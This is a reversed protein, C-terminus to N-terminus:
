FEVQSRAMTLYPYFEQYTTPSQFNQGRLYLTFGSKQRALEKRKQLVSVEERLAM